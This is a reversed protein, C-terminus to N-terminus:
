RNKLSKASFQKCTARTSRALTILKGRMGLTKSKRQFGSSLSKTSSTPSIIQINSYGCSGSHKVLFVSVSVTPIFM